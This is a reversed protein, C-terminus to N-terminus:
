PFNCEPPPSPAEGSNNGDADFDIVSPKVGEDAELKRINKNKTSKKKMSRKEKPKKKEEKTEETKPPYVNMAPGALHLEHMVWQTETDGGCFVLTKRTGIVLNTWPCVIPIEDGFPKWFGTGEAIVIVGGYFIDNKESFFYGNELCDADGVSLKKKM